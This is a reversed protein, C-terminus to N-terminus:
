ARCRQALWWISLVTLSETGLEESLLSDLLLHDVVLAAGNPDSQVLRNLEAIEDSSADGDVLQSTLWKIRDEPRERATM